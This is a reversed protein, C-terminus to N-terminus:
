KVGSTDSSCFKDDTAETKLCSAWLDTDMIEEFGKMEQFM